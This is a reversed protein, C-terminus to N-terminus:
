YRREAEGFRQLREIVKKRYMKLDGRHKGDVGVVGINWIIEEDTLGDSLFLNKGTKISQFIRQQDHTLQYTEMLSSVEDPFTDPNVDETLFEEWWSSSM